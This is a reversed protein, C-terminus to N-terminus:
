RSSMGTQTLVSAVAAVIAAVAAIVSVFMTWRFRIAKRRERARDKERLWQEAHRRAIRQGNDDHLGWVMTDAPNPQQVLIARIADIGRRELASRVEPPLLQGTTVDRQGPDGAM